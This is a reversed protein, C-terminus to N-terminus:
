SINQPLFCKYLVLHMTLENLVGATTPDVTIDCCIWKSIWNIILQDLNTVVNHLHMPQAAKTAM